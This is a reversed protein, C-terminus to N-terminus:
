VDEPERSALMTTLCDLVHDPHEDCFDNDILYDCLSERSQIDLLDILLRGYSDRWWEHSDLLVRDHDAHVEIWDVIAQKCEPRHNKTGIPTAYICVSASVAPLTTRM